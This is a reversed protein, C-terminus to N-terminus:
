DLSWNINSNISKKDLKIGAYCVKCFDRKARHLATTLPLQLNSPVLKTVDTKTRGLPLKLVELSDNFIHFIKHDRDVLFCTAKNKSLFSSFVRELMPEIRNRDCNQSLSFPQSLRRHNEIGKYTVPLKIDRSKQYIKQKNHLPQFESEIQGLTEAEGLFLIGKSALSFHLNRLVQQQLDSQLYILVNRCSILNMRTFAADKTLDHSAFLLKERLHRIVQLSNNKYVFYNELREPSINNIITEPYIGHIAKELAGKDIDTAFIKFKVPKDSKAIAEDLLIALSYAEEGTACATVWCRLEEQPPVKAILQPIVEAELFDWAPQDRFFQTVHILIESRLISREQASTELLHIFEDVENCGTILYRREIRRLLTSTKYHSFDTDDEEGIIETIRELNHSNFFATTEPSLTNPTKRSRVLQNTIQALQQPSVSRDVMGTAIAARPMAAFEATDPEQVMTFGGAKKIAKLGNTGDTGTGSLIIGIAQENYNKALSELFIDIPLNLGHYNRGEQNLLHIRHNEVVLNKGPPNLYVTNPELQMGETARYITMGTRRELLEKMLSKFDPSLHQIVVFAAGSDIPM